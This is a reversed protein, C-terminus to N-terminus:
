TGRRSQIKGAQPLPIAARGRYRRAHRHDLRRALRRPAPRHKLRAMSSESPFAHGPLPGERPSVRKAPLLALKALDLDNPLHVVHRGLVDGLFAPANAHGDAVQRGLAQAFGEDVCEARARALYARAPESADCRGARRGHKSASDTPDGVLLCGMNRLSRSAPLRIRTVPPPVPRPRAMASFYRWSPASITMQPRRLPTRSWVASSIRLAWPPRTSVKPTSIRSAAAMSAMTSSMKAPPGGSVPRTLLAAPFKMLGVSASLGRAKSAMALM